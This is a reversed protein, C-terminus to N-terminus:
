CRRGTSAAEYGRQGQSDPIEEVDGNALWLARLQTLEPPRLCSRDRASDPPKLADLRGGRQMRREAPRLRDFTAQRSRFSHSLRLTRVTELGVRVLRIIAYVCGLKRRITTKHSLTNTSPTSKLKLTM